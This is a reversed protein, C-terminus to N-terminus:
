RPHTHESSFRRSASCGCILGKSRPAWTVLTGQLDEGARAGSVLQFYFLIQYRRLVLDNQYQPQGAVGLARAGEPCEYYLVVRPSLWIRFGGVRRSQFLGSLSHPIHMCLCMGLVGHAPDSERCGCCCLHVGAGYQFPSHQRCNEASM